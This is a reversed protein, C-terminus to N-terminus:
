DVHYRVTSIRAVAERGQLLDRRVVRRLVEGAVTAPQSAM